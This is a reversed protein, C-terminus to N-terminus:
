ASSECKNIQHGQEENTGLNIFKNKRGVGPEIEATGILFDPPHSCM